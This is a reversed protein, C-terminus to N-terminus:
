LAESLKLSSEPLEGNERGTKERNEGRRREAKERDERQGGQIRGSVRRRWAFFSPRV